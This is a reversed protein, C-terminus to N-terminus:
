AAAAMALVVRGPGQRREEVMHHAEICREMPVHAAVQPKLIGKGALALVKSITAANDVIRAVSVTVDFELSRDIFPEANLCVMMGGRKLLPYSRAHTDGGLLDLVLDFRTSTADLNERDYAIVHDAGLSRLYDVNTSRGTATVEVGLSRALQIAQGGVAGAGAHVLIHMGPALQATDCLAIWACLAPQVFASAETFDLNCPLPVVDGVPRAILEASTGQEHHGAFFAVRDGVNITPAAGIVAIVTGAGNRGPIKPFVTTHHRQLQGARMKCDGPGVGASAVAILAEGNGPM